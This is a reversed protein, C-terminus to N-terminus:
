GEDCSGRCAQWDMRAAERREDRTDLISERQQMFTNEATTAEAEGEAEAARATADLAAQEANAAEQEATYGTEAEREAAAIALDLEDATTELSGQSNQYAADRQAATIMGSQYLATTASQEANYTARANRGSLNIAAIAAEEAEEIEANAENQESRVGQSDANNNPEAENRTANAGSIGANYEATIRAIDRNATATINRRQANYQDWCSQKCAMIRFRRRKRRDRRASVRRGLPM